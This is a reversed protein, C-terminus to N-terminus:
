VCGRQRRRSAGWGCFPLLPLSLMLAYGIDGVSDAWVGSVTGTTWLMQMANAGIVVASIAVSMALTGLLVTRTSWGFSDTVRCM